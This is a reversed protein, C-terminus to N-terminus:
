QSRRLMTETLAQEMAQLSALAETNQENYARRIQQACLSQRRRIEKEPLADYFKAAAVPDFKDM